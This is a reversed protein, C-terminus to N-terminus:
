CRLASVLQLDLGTVKIIKIIYQSANLAAIRVGFPMM